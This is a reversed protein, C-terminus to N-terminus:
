PWLERELASRLARLAQREPSRPRRIELWDETRVLAECLAKRAAIVHGFDDPRFGAAQYNALVRHRTEPGQVVRLVDPWGFASARARPVKRPATKIGTSPSGTQVSVMRAGTTRGHPYGAGGNASRKGWQKSGAFFSTGWGALDLAEQQLEGVLEAPDRSFSSDGYTESGAELRHRVASTFADFAALPDSHSQAPGRFPAACVSSLLTGPLTGPV